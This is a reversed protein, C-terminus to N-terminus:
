SYYNYITSIIVGSFFDDLKEVPAVDRHSLLNSHWRASCPHHIPVFLSSIMPVQNTTVPVM